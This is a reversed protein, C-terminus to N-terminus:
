EDCNKWDAEMWKSLIFKLAGEYKDYESEPVYINFPQNLVYSKQIHLQRIEKMFKLDVKCYNIIDGDVLAYYIENDCYIMKGNEVGGLCIGVKSECVDSMEDGGFYNVNDVYYCM